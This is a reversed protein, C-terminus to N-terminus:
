RAITAGPRNPHPIRGGLRVLSSEAEIEGGGEPQRGPEAPVLRDAVM